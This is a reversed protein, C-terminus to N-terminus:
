SKKLHDKRQVAISPVDLNLLIQINHDIVSGVITMVFAKLDVMFAIWCLLHVTANQFKFSHWIQKKKGKAQLRNMGIIM